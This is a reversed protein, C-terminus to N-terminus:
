SPSTSAEYILPMPLTSPYQTIPPVSPPGSTGLLKRSHSRLYPPNRRCNRQGLQENMEQKQAPDVPSFFRAPPRSELPLYGSVIYPMLYSGEGVFEEEVSGYTSGKRPRSQEGALWASLVLGRLGIEPVTLSLSCAVLLNPQQQPLIRPAVSFPDTPIAVVLSLQAAPLTFSSSNDPEPVSACVGTARVIRKLVGQPSYLIM